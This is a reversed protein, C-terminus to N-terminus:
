VRVHATIYKSFKTTIKKKKAIMFFATGMKGLFKTVREASDKSFTVELDFSINSKM